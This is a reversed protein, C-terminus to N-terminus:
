DNSASILEMLIEQIPLEESQARHQWITREWLYPSRRTGSLEISFVGDRGDYLVRYVQGERRVTLFWSGFSEHSYEYQLVQTSIEKLAIALEKVQAFARIPYDKADMM